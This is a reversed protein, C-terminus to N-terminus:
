TLEPDTVDDSTDDVVLSDGEGADHRRMARGQLARGLEVLRTGLHREEESPMALRRGAEADLLRLVYMGVDRNVNGLRNMLARDDRWTEHDTM